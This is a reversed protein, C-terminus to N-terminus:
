LYAVAIRDKGQMDKIITTTYNYSEFLQKTENGLAENIECYIKGNTNLHALGFKALKDYFILADNDPVFLATHPEYQLVNAHMATAESQKIYPPNSVICDYMGLKTYNAEDLFDLQMFRIDANYTKANTRAVELAAESVDIATIDADTFYQSLTVPICGSGTGIDIIKKNSLNEKKILHVLEDTEPRPILVNENVYFSYGGFWCEELVYQVPKQALLDTKWEELVELQAQSLEFEKALLRKSGELGTLKEIVAAAISASESEDYVATLSSKLLNYAQQIQM